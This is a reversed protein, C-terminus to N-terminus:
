YHPPPPEPASPGGAKHEAEQIRDTLNAIQRTLLDIQKWQAVITQNLDEITEDQYAIRIELADIRASLADHDSM